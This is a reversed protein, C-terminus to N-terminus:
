NSGFVHVSGSLWASLHKPNTKKKKKEDRGDQSLLAMVYTYTNEDLKHFISSVFLFKNAAYM